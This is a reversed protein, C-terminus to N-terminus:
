FYKNHRPVVYTLRFGFKHEDCDCLHNIIEEEETKSM